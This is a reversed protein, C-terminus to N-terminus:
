LLEEGRFEQAEFRRGSIGYSRESALFLFVSVISEPKSLFYDCDPVALAHM